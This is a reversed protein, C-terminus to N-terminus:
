PGRARFGGLRKRTERALRRSPRRRRGPHPPAPTVPVGRQRDAPSPSRDDRGRSGLCPLFPPFSPLPRACPCPCSHPCPVLAVPSSRGGLRWPAACTRIRGPHAPGLCRLAALLRAPFARRALRPGTRDVRISVSLRTHGASEFTGRQSPLARSVRIHGRICPASPLLLKAGASESM